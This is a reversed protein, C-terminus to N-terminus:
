MNGCQYHAMEYTQPAIPNAIAGHPRFNMQGLESFTEHWLFNMELM